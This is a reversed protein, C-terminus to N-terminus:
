NFQQIAMTIVVKLKRLLGLGNCNFYKYFTLDNRNKIYENIADLVPPCYIIDHFTIWGGPKVFPEYKKLENTVQDYTHLADIFLHDIPETWEVTLDNSKIFSWYNELDLKKVDEIISKVIQDIKVDTETQRLSLHEDLLYWFNESSYEIVKM